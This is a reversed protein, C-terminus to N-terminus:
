PLIAKKLVECDKCRGKECYDKIQHVSGLKSHYKKGSFPLSEFKKLLSKPIPAKFSNWEELVSQKMSKSHVLSSLLFLAPLYVTGYLLKMRGSFPISNEICWKRWLGISHENIFDDFSTDLIAKLFLVGTKLRESPHNSPRCGKLNWKFSKESVIDQISAETIKGPRHYYDKFLFIAAKQMPERNHSIGLGDFLSIILAQKWAESQSISPDFFSLFDETKKELYEQHATEIQREFVETSIFRINGACPLLESHKNRYQKLFQQLDASIAPLLNLTLPSNGSETVVKDPSHEAVIHLIVNNYNKDSQHGHSYWHNAKLHIEVSGSWTINGAIITANLFDPGDSPNLTGPHIVSTKKGCETYLLSSDFLRQEWIWQLISEPYPFLSKSM